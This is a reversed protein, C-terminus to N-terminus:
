NRERKLFKNNKTLSPTRMLNLSPQSGKARIRLLQTTTPKQYFMNGRVVVPRTTKSKKTPEIITKCIELDNFAFDADTGLSNRLKGKKM